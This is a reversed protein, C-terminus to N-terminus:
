MARCGSTFAWQRYIWVLKDRVMTNVFATLFEKAIAEDTCIFRALSSADKMKEIAEKEAKETKEARGKAAALEKELEKIKIEASSVQKQLPEVEKERINELARARCFLDTTTHTLRLIDEAIQEGLRECSWEMITEMGPVKDRIRDVLAAALTDRDRLGGQLESSRSSSSRKTRKLTRVEEVELEQRKEKGRRSQGQTVQLDFAAAGGSPADTPTPASINIVLPDSSPKAITKKAGLAVKARPPRPASPTTFGKNLAM